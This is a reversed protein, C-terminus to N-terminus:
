NIQKTGCNACFRASTSLESGCEHCYKKSTDIEIDKSISRLEIGEGFYSSIAGTPKFEEDVRERYPLNREEIFTLVRPVKHKPHMGDENPCKDLKCEMEVIEGLWIAFKKLIAEPTTYTLSFMSMYEETAAKSNFVKM